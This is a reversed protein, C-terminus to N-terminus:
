NKKFIKDFFILISIIVVSALILVILWFVPLIYRSKVLIIKFPQKFEDKVNKNYITTLRITYDGPVLTFNSIKKSYVKETEVITTDKESYFVGGASNLIDFTMDVPTAVKGFSTFIVRLGIDGANSVVSQDLELNIDFLQTPMGGSERGAMALSLNKEAVQPQQMGGTIAIAFQNDAKAVTQFAVQAGPSNILGTNVYGIVKNNVKEFLGTTYLVSFISFLLWVVFASSLLKKM